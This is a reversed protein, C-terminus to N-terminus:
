ERDLAYPEGLRGLWDVVLEGWADAPISPDISHAIDDRSAWDNRKGISHDDNWYLHMTRHREGAYTIQYIEDKKTPLGVFSFRGRYPWRRWAAMFGLELTSKQVRPLRDHGNMLLGLAIGESFDTEMTM